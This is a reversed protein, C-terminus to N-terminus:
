GAIFIWSCWLTGVTAMLAGAGLYWHYSYAMKEHYQLYCNAFFMLAIGLYAVGAVIAQTGEVPVLGRSRWYVYSHRMVVSYVAFLTIPIPLAIGLGYRLWWFDTDNLPLM